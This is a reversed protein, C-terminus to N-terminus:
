RACQTRRRGWRRHDDLLNILRHGSVDVDRVNDVAIYHEDAAIRIDPYDTRVAHPMPLEIRMTIMPFVNEVSSVFKVPDHHIVATVQGIVGNGRVPRHFMRTPRAMRARNCLVMRRHRAGRLNMGSNM